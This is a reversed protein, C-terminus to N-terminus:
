LFEDTSEINIGHLFSDNSSYSLLWLNLVLFQLPHDLMDFGLYNLAIQTAAERHSLINDHHFILRPLESRKKTRDNGPFTNKLITNSLVKPILQTFICRINLQTHSINFMNSYSWDTKSKLKRLLIRRETDLLDKIVAVNSSTLTTQRGSRKDYKLTERGEKFSM